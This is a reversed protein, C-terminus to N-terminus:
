SQSFLEALLDEFDLQRKQGRDTFHFDGWVELVGFNPNSNKRIQFFVLIGHEFDQGLVLVVELARHIFIELAFVHRSNVKGDIVGFLVRIM